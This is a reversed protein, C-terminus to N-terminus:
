NGRRRMRETGRKRAIVIKYVQWRQRERSKEERGGRREQGRGKM